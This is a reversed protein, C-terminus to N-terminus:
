YVKRVEDATTPSLQSLTPDTHRRGCYDSETFQQFSTATSQHSRELKDTFYMASAAYRGVSVKV